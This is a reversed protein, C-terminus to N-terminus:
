APRAVKAISYLAETRNSVGLEAYIRSLHAKVTGESIGLARAIVKNAKGQLAMDLVERQRPSLADVQGGDVRRRPQTVDSDRDVLATPPLYVGHALVVRMAAVILNRDITKTMYGSAGRDIALRILKPDDQGSVIVVPAGEFSPKIKELADIREATAGAADPLGMDLLVLDVSAKAHSLAEGCSGAEIIEVDPELTRMILSLGSRTMPHDDIILVRV